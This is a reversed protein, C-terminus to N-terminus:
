RRGGILSPLMLLVVVGGALLVWNPISDFSTETLWGFSSSTQQSTSSSGTPQTGSGQQTGASPSPSPSPAPVTAVAAPVTSAPTTVPSAAAPSVPAQVPFAQPNAVQASVMGTTWVSSPLSNYYAEWTALAAQACAAGNNGCDPPSAANPDGSSVEAAVAGCYEQALQTVAAQATAAPSSPLTNIYLASLVEGSPSGTNLLMAAEASSPLQNFANQIYEACTSAGAPGSQGVGRRPVMRLMAATPM